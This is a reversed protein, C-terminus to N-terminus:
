CVLRAQKIPNRRWTFRMVDPNHIRYIDVLDRKNLMTIMKSRSKPNNINVYNQSDKSPKLVLNFDGCM